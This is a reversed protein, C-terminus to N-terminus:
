GSEEAKCKQKNGGAAWTDPAEVLLDFADYPTSCYCGKLNGWFDLCAFFDTLGITFFQGLWIGGGWGFGCLLRQNLVSSTGNICLRILSIKAAPQPLDICSKILQILKDPDTIKLSM